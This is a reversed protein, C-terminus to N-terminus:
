AEVRHSVASAGFIQSNTLMKFLIMGYIRSFEAGKTFEAGVVGLEIM